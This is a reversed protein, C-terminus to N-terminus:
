FDVWKRYQLMFGRDEDESSSTKDYFVALSLEDDESLRKGISADIHNVTKSTPWQKGVSLNIGYNLRDDQPPIGQGPNGRSYGLLLNASRGDSPLVAGNVVDRHRYKEMNAQMGAYWQRNDSLNERHLLSASAGRGRTMPKRTSWDKYDNQWVSTNLYKNNGLNANASLQVRNQYANARLSPNDPINEQIGVAVSANFYENFQRTYKVTAGPRTTKAKDTISLAASLHHDAKQWDVDFRATTEKVRGNPVTSGSMTARNVEFGYGTDNAGRGKEYRINQQQLRHNAVQRGQTHARLSSVRGPAVSLALKRAQQREKETPANHMARHTLQYAEGDRKLIRLASFQDGVSLQHNSALIRTLKPEDKLQLATAFQLWANLPIKYRDAQKVLRVLQKNNKDKLARSLAIEYVRAKEKSSLPTDQLQALIKYFDKSAKDEQLLELYTILANKRTVNPKRELALIKQLYRKARRLQKSKLAVQTRILWFQSQDALHPEYENALQRTRNFDGANFAQQVTDLLLQKAVGLKHFDAKNVLQTLQLQDNQKLAQQLALRYVEERQTKSLPAADLEAFVKEFEDERGNAALTGIYQVLAKKRLVSPEQELLLLHQYYHPTMPSQQSKSYAALIAWYQPMLEFLHEQAKIEKLDASVKRLDKDDFANQMAKLLLAPSQLQEWGTLLVKRAAEKDGLAAWADAQAMLYADQKEKSIGKHELLLQSYELTRQHDKTRQSLELLIELQYPNATVLYPDLEPLLRAAKDPQQLDWLLQLRNLHSLANGGVVSEYVEWTNIAGRLNKSIIQTGALLEWQEPNKIRHQKLYGLLFAEAKDPMHKNLNLFLDTVAQKPLASQGALQLLVERGDGKLDSQAVRVLNKYYEDERQQKYLQQWTTLALPVDDNREALFALRELLPEDDSNAELAQKLHQQAGQFDETLIAIDVQRLILEPDGPSEKLLHLNWQQALAQQRTTLALQVGENLLAVNQGEVGLLVKIAELANEPKEAKLWAQKIRILLSHRDAPEVTAKLAQELRVAAQIPLGAQASWHASKELLRGRQESDYESLNAYLRATLEPQGAKQSIEILQKLDEPNRTAFEDSNFFGTLRSRNGNDAAQKLWAYQYLRKNEESGATQFAKHLYNESDDTFGAQRASKAAEAWWKPTEAPDKEALRAYLQTAQPYLRFDASYGALRKLQQPTPNDLTGALLLTERVELYPAETDTESMVASYYANLRNKLRLEAVPQQLPPPIDHNFHKDLLRHTEKWYGNESLSATLQLVKLLDPEPNELAQHYDDIFRDALRVKLTQASLETSLTNKAHQHMFYAAATSGTLLLTAMPLMYPRISKNNQEM